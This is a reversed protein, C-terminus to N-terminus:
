DVIQDLLFDGGGEKHGAFPHGFVIWLYPGQELDREKLDAGMSLDVGMQRKM